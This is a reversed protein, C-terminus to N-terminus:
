KKKEEEEEEVGYGGIVELVSIAASFKGLQPMIYCGVIRDKFQELMEQVIAIGEQQATPGRGVQDMRQRIVLPVSMGPVENHLFEANRSSVLPCLGLLVPVHFKEVDNLFREVVAADYVPQTMILNAGNRIKQELKALEREYDVAAPEAGCAIFFQTQDGIKKGSPDIGRNLNDVLQILKISNLDYVATAGPYDGMKPPDGTIIVLNNLGLVNYGLIDSQLGLLNRDRCCLHLIVESGPIEKQISLGLAINSMRVTARPGDAINVVDVGSSLLMKANNVRREVSLGAAPNCEVSVVFDDKGKPPCRKTGRGLRDEWVRTIKEALKSRERLPVPTMGGEVSVPDLGCVGKGNAENLSSLLPSTSGRDDEAGGGGQMRVAGALALLHSKGVGCCGGVLMVGAKLLRRGYVGFYEPTSMYMTRTDINKPQGSNPTAMVPTARDDVEAMRRAVEYVDSPGGCNVGVVDAGWKVLLRAVTEPTSGDPLCFTDDQFSMQAVIVGDTMLARAVSLAIKIEQLHQFTELVLLDVGTPGSTLATIQEQFAAKLESEKEESMFGLAEGTPGVSGAVWVKTGKTAERALAVGAQNCETVKDPIGYKALLFRNASFTNTEIVQVGAEIHEKHVSVVKQPNSLNCEDFARNIFYGREYLASGMGGDFLIPKGEKLAARFSARAGVADAIVM